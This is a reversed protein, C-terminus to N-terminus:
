CLGAIAKREVVFQEIQNKERSAYKGGCVRFCDNQTGELSYRNKEILKASCVLKKESHFITLLIRPEKGRRNNRRIREGEGKGKMLGRIRKGAGDLFLPADKKIREPGSRGDYRREERNRTPPSSKKM